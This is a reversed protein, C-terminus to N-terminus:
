AKLETKKYTTARLESQLNNWLTKVQRAAGGDSFEVLTSGAVMAETVARDFPIRGL